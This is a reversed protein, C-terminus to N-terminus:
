EYRLAEVPDLRAARWAPYFTAIFSFSLSLIVIKIVENWKLVAPLNTLYYVEPSFLDRGAFYQVFAQIAEINHVVLLGLIFGLATGFVGIASGIMFFIRLISGQSAGMTRLIAIDKGKDKVLMIMGSIINFAAIAIMLTLIVFMVNREVMLADFFGSTNQWDTLTQYPGMIPSIQRRATITDSPDHILIELSNVRDEMDYFRMAMELPIFIFNQDYEYMGVDFVAVVDLTLQRPISGFATTKVQPSIITIKDGITVDLFRALRAGMVTQAGSFTDPDFKGNVIANMLVPKAKFGEAPLGRVVVGQSYGNGHILAQSQIVPYVNKVTPQELIEERIKEYDELPRDVDMLHFHGNLGIIRDQLEVRFGNMVSMVIILTAVGLAIGVFSLFTIISIFGEKRKAKMYRRAITREFLSFMLYKGRQRL